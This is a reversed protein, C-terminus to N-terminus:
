RDWVLKSACHILVCALSPRFETPIPATNLTSLGPWISIHCMVKSGNTM